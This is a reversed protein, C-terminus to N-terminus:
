TPSELLSVPRPSDFEAQARAVAKAAAENPAVGRSVEESFLVKIRAQLWERTKTTPAAPPTSPPAAVPMAASTVAPAAAAPPADSKAIEDVVASLLKTDFGPEIWARDENEKFGLLKLLLVVRPVELLQKVKARSRLLSAYRCTLPFQEIEAKHALMMSLAAKLVPLTVGDSSHCEVLRAAQLRAARLVAGEQRALKTAREGEAECASCPEDDDGGPPPRQLFAVTSWIPYGYVLGLLWFRCEKELKFLPDTGVGGDLLTPIKLAASAEVDAAIEPMGIHRYLTALNAVDVLDTVSVDAGVGVMSVGRANVYPWFCSGSSILRAELVDRDRDSKGELVVSALPKLGNAVRDVLELDSAVGDLEPCDPGGRFCLNTACVHCFLKDECCKSVHLNGYRQIFSQHLHKM